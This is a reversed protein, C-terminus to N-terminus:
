VDKRWVCFQSCLHHCRLGRVQQPHPYNTCSAQSQPPGKRPPGPLCLVSRGLAAREAAVKGDRCCGRQSPLSASGRYGPASLSPCCSSTRATWCCPRCGSGGVAVCGSGAGSTSLLGAGPPGAAKLLLCLNMLVRCGHFMPQPPSPGLGWWPSSAVRCLPWPSTLTARWM